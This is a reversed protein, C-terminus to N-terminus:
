LLSKFIFNQTSHIEKNYKELKGSCFVNIEYGLEKIIEFCRNRNDNEWLEIYIIPKHKNILEIAGLIVFNEFNEVDIKMAGIKVGPVNLQEISDLKKILVEAKEGKNNELISPHIVHSLGHMKVSNDIPIVMEARGQENGLAFEFIVVNNFKFFSVVRKLCTINYPIPEFSFVEISKKRKSLHATMVGINAGVDLVICNEPIMELFHFFDNEKKDWRLTYIKFLSFIFLYNEFGLNKQLLYKITNKM